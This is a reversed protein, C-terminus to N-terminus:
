QSEEYANLSTEPGSVSHGLILPNLLFYDLRSLAGSIRNETWSLEQSLNKPVRDENKEFVHRIYDEQSRPVNTDRAQNSRPHEEDCEKNPAALKRENRLTEM